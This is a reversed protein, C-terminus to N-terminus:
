IDGSENVEKLESEHVIEGFSGIKGYYENGFPLNEFGSRMAYLLCAPNGQQMGWDGNPWIEKTPAEIIIQINEGYKDKLYESKPIVKYTKGSEVM